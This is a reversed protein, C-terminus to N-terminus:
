RVQVVIQSFDAFKGFFGDAVHRLLSLRNHRLASDEVNVMVSDFFRDISPKLQVLCHLADKYQRQEILRDYREEMSQLRTHLEREADDKFLSSDVPTSESKRVGEKKLINNARNFGVILPDFEPLSTTTQLVEMRRALDVVDCENTVSGTVAHIVDDRLNKTTKMYFRLREIIFGFPDEVISAASKVDTEVGQRASTIMQRLDFKVNGQITGEIMIRVVSLAHRRLAFPDESGKPIIGAQFFAVITDLRDALGLVLGETTEPLAGDMGRPVYQDRIAECVERKEGDHQAYYGGMIGQLEPFEGVIGSLLDAKCLQAARVCAEVSDQPLALLGAILRALKCVREAKHAMTGLKQHFTVGTLKKGREELKVKRDEDFFFKADALRAALVRENGARILLMNKPENNAIAIFHPALKGSQKDRVSFFGQHHKMSTMLVEQPVALYEPKFNGLVACPWETTHVAQDLLADDANLAVGARVCLRDIQTQIKARRREPDVMVGRRELERSYTKFDRVTIPKGSGMVRHGYTRYGAQIGAIRVPVVKGGFLAVIWRVPRAFRLGAENWKMAKPFSIKEVLQPLLETLLTATARGADRKVAFLYEGKPTARVELSEVAVGQGTAFGMAARTPQGTQDFAVMRSPGMTEKIVATQHACLDDVVLVLRRPTGYTNVSRFSLRADQFMRAASERLATLAPAVFEFPLEEMGIEFLLEATSKPSRAKQRPGKVLTRKM